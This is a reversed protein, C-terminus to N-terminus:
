EYFTLTAGDLRRAISEAVDRHVRGVPQEGVGATEQRSLRIKGYGRPKEGAAGAGQRCGDSRM